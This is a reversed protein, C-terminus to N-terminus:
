SLNRTENRQNILSQLIINKNKEDRLEKELGKFRDQLLHYEHIQKRLKAKYKLYDSFTAANMVLLFVIALLLLITTM